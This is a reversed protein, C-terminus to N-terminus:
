CPPIPWWCGDSTPFPYSKGSSCSTYGWVRNFLLLSKMEEQNSSASTALAADTKPQWAWFILFITRHLLFKPVPEGQCPLSFYDAKWHGTLGHKPCPGLPPHPSICTKTWHGTNGFKFFAEPRNTGWWRKLHGLSHQWFSTNRDIMPLRKWEKRSRGKMLCRLYWIWRDRLPYLAVNCDRLNERQRERSM